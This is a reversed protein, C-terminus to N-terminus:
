LNKTKYNKLVLKQNKSNKSKALYETFKLARHIHIPEVKRAMPQQNQHCNQKIKLIKPMIKKKCIRQDWFFKNTTNYNTLDPWLQLSQPYLARIMEEWIDCKALFQWLCNALNGSPCALRNRLPNRERTVSVSNMYKKHERIARAQSRIRPGPGLIIFSKVDYVLSSLSTLSPCELKNSFDM